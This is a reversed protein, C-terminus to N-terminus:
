LPVRRRMRPRTTACWCQFRACKRRKRSRSPLFSAWTCAELVFCTAFPAPTSTMAGGGTTPTCQVPFFASSLTCISWATQLRLGCPSRSQQMTSLTLAHSSARPLSADGSRFLIVVSTKGDVKTYVVACPKKKSTVTQYALQSSVSRRGVRTNRGCYLCSL